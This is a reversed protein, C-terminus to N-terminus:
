QIYEGERERQIYVVRYSAIFYGNFTDYNEDM